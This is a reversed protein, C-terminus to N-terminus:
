TVVPPPCVGSVVTVGSDVPSLMVWTTVLTPDTVNDSSGGLDGLIWRDTDWYIDLNDIVSTYHPRGDLRNVYTFNGNIITSSIGSVCIDTPYSVSTPNCCEYANIEQWNGVKPKNRSLMVSSPVVKGSGDYRVFARLDKKGTKRPIATTTTTSTTAM